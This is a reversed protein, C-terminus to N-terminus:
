VRAKARRGAAFRDLAGTAALARVVLWGVLGALIAGSVATSVLYIVNYAVSKAANGFVVLELAWEGLGGAAGALMAVGLGGRRYLFLAFVAEMLLGQALGSYVTTIGWQEGIAMEVVAALLETFLAAGPKRIVLAGMVGALLWAGNAVGGLGPTVADAAGYWAYGPTDWLWYVVGIAIGLVAAVIIDVPRWKRRRATATADVLSDITAHM